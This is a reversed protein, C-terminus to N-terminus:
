RVLGLLLATGLACIALGAELVRMSTDRLLGAVHAQLTETTATTTSLEATAIPQRDM